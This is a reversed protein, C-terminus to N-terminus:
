IKRALATAKGIYTAPSMALLIAPHPRSMRIVATLPDPTEVTEVPELMTKFPHNKQIVGISFAVDESTIPKGDHFVAGEVLKLTLSKGDEATKIAFGEIPMAKGDLALKSAMESEGLVIAPPSFKGRVIPLTAGTAKAIFGQLEQAAHSMAPSPGTLVDLLLDLDGQTGRGEEIKKLIETLWRTWLGPVIGVRYEILQGAYMRPAVDGVIRFRLHPSTLRDLNRPTAFFEWIAGPDGPVFQERHLRFIM